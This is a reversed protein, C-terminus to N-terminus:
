AQQGPVMHSVLRPGGVHPSSDPHTPEAPSAAIRTVFQAASRRDRALREFEAIVQLRRDRYALFQAHSVLVDDDVEIV